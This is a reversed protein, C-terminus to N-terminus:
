IENKNGTGKMDYNNIKKYIMQFHKQIADANRVGTYIQKYLCHLM